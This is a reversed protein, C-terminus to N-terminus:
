REQDRASEDPGPLLSCSEAEHSRGGLRRRVLATLRDRFVFPLSMGSALAVQVLMTDATPDGCIGCAIPLM